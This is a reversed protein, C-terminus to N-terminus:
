RLVSTNWKLVKVGAEAVATDSCQSSGPLWAQIEEAFAKVGSVRKTAREAAWKEPYSSVDGTHTVVRDEVTVGIGAADVTPEWKLENLVDSQLQTDSKM